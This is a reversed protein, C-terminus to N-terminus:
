TIRHRRLYEVLNDYMGDHNAFEAHNRSMRLWEVTSPRRGALAELLDAQSIPRPSGTRIADSMAARTADECVAALDAGSFLETMAALEDYDVSGVPRDALGAALISRRAPRDPPLVLVTRDFRGPRRLAADVDWPQNTAALVYVGDNASDVGDLETLLQNVVNRGGSDARFKSRKHGLADIEDIFMVTPSLGRAADFLSKVNKESNGSWMDLVDTLGVSMFYVGLEGAVAKALFTKGCGPPGYLLLGGRLSAGYMRRIEENRMPDLFSLRLNQKVDDMGAVDDLSVEPRFADFLDEASGVEGGRAERERHPRDTTDVGLLRRSSQALRQFEEHDPQDRLGAECHGLAAAAQGDDLLLTVLHLRLSVNDPAEAVARELGRLLEPDTSMSANGGPTTRLICM